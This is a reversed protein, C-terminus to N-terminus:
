CPLISKVTKDKGQYMQLGKSGICEIKHLSTNGILMHNFQGGGRGSGMVTLYEAPMWGTSFVPRFNFHTWDLKWEIGFGIIDGAAEQMIKRMDYPGPLHSNIMEM